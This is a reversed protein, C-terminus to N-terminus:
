SNLYFCFYFFYPIWYDRVTLNGLKENEKKEDFGQVAKLVLSKYLFDNIFVCKSNTCFFIEQIKKEMLLDKFIRLEFVLIDKQNPGFIDPLRWEMAIHVM